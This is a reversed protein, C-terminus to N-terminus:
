ELVANIKVELAKLYEKAYWSSINWLDVFTNAISNTKSYDDIFKDKKLVFLNPTNKNEPFRKKLSEDGYVYVESYDSPVDKFKFKYASYAAFVINDPMSAEIKNVPLNIRTEYLIDKNLNRLSAWYYLIKKPDSIIFNKSNVNISNMQKLPKIANNVTSLSINFKRSLDLQTLKRNNKELVQFLIDRYIFEKKLM